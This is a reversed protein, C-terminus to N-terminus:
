MLPKNRAARYFMVGMVLILFGILLYLGIDSGTFPLTGGYGAEGSSGM